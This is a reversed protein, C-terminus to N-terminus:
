ENYYNYRDIVEYINGQGELAAKAESHIQAANEKTVAISPIEIFPPVNVDNMIGLIAPVIYDGYTQPFCNTAYDDTGDMVLEIGQIGDGICVSIYNDRPIGAEEFAARGGISNEGNQHTILFKKANPHAALIRSIEEKAVDIAGFTNAIVIKDNIKEGYTRVLVEKAGTTRKMLEDGADPIACLIILDVDDISSFKDNLHQVIYEGMKWSSVWNNICVYPAGPIPIDVAILPINAEGFRMAIIENVNAYFQYEVVINPNKSMLIDVNELATKPDANNNVTFINEAKTGAWKLQQVLSEEVFVCFPLFTNNQAWGVEYSEALPKAWPKRQKAMELYNDFSLREAVQPAAQEAQKQSGAFLGAAICFSLTVALVVICIKKMAKRRTKITEYTVL